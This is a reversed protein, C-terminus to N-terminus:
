GPFLNQYLSECVPLKDPLSRLFLVQFLLLPAPDPLPVFQFTTCCCAYGWGGWLSRRIGHDKRMTRFQSAPALGIDNWMSWQIYPPGWSPAHGQCLERQTCPLEVAALRQCSLVHTGGHQDQGSPGEARGSSPIALTSHFDVAAWAVTRLWRPSTSQPPLLSDPWQGLRLWQWRVCPNSAAPSEM